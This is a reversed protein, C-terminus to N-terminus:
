GFYKQMLSDYLLQTEDISKQIAAKSKDIQAVSEVFKSQLNMPPLYILIQKLKTVNIGAMIAGSSVLEIQHQIDGSYHLQRMMFEPLAKMENLRIRLVDSHIIGNEFSSPFVACRGVNGKRSMAIDGPIISYADLEEAKKETVFHTPLTRFESNIQPIEWVAVGEETYEDKGLQTGFPGCKIDDSNVCVDVLKCKEWKCAPDALDGFMEVFRAKVLEDLFLVERNRLEQIKVLEDLIEVINDQKKREPIAIAAQKLYKFHRNYGTNPIKVNCLCYYLYKVNVNSLKPKLVKVGDAGLLFPEDIYKIKRTHDGFVIVPVDSFVEQCESYGAIKEQGQDIIPYAGETQYDSKPIKRGHSTVDTFVDTFVM